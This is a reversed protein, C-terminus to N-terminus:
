HALPVASYLQSYLAISFYHQGPTQISVHLLVNSRSKVFVRSVSKNKSSVTKTDSSGQKQTSRSIVFKIALRRKRKVTLITRNAGMKKFIQFASKPRVIRVAM